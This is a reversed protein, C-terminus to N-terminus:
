CTSRPRRARRLLGDRRRPARGQDLARRDTRARGRPRRLPRGRDERRPDGLAPRALRRPLRSGAGAARRRARRPGPAAAERAWLGGRGVRWGLTRHGDVRRGRAASARDRGAGRGVLDGRPPPPREQTAARHHSGARGPACLRLPGQRVVLGRRDASPQAVPNAEGQRRAHDRQHQLRRRLPWLGLPREPDGLATGRLPVADLHARGGPLAGHRQRLLSGQVARGRLNRDGVAVRPQDRRATRRRRGVRQLPHVPLLPHLAGPRARDAALDPDAERVHAEPVAHAHEGPRLPVDPGAAPVRWGQRLGPLRAPPQRPHVRADLEPRRGGEPLQAGHARDDRGAGDAHVRGAAEADRRGRRPVDPLGRGAGRPAARLLLRPDRARRGGGDRGDRDGEAGARDTRRDHGHRARGAAQTM